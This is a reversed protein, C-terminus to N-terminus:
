LVAVCAALPSHHLLYLTIPQIGHQPFGICTTNFKQSSLLAAFLHSVINVMFYM